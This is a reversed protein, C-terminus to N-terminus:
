HLDKGDILLVRDIVRFITTAGAFDTKSFLPIQLHDYDSM